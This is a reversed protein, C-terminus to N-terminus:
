FGRDKPSRIAIIKAVEVKRRYQPLAVSEDKKVLRKPIQKRASYLM